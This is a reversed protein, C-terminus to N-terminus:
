KPCGKKIKKSVTKSLFLLKIALIFTFVLTIEWNVFLMLTYLFFIVFFESVMLLVASIVNTSLSAETIINKTLLSSNKASYDQYQMSLYRRFLKQTILAYLTHSFHMMRYNYLINVVGRFLYFCFLVLGFSIAFDIESGFEFFNYINSYYKNEHIIQFNTSVDIFPM